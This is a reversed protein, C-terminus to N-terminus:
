EENVTQAQESARAEKSARIKERVLHLERRLQEVEKKAAIFDSRESFSEEGKSTYQYVIRGLKEYAASLHAEVSKKKLLLAAEDALADTKCIVRNTVTRVGTKVDNWTSM